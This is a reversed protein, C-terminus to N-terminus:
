NLLPKGAWSESDVAWEVLGNSQVLLSGSGDLMQRSLGVFQM